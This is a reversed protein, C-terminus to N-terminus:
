IYLVSHCLSAKELCSLYINESVDNKNWSWAISLARFMLWMTLICEDEYHKLTSGVMQFEFDSGKLNSGNFRPLRITFPHNRIFSFKSRADLKVLALSQSASPHCTFSYNDSYILSHVNFVIFLSNPLWTGGATTSVASNSCV